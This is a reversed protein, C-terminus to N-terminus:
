KEGDTIESAEEEPAAKNRGDGRSQAEARARDKQITKKV